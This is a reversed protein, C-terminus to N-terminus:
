HNVSQILVDGVRTGTKQAWGVPLELISSAEKIHPSIKGPKLQDLIYCVEGRSNIFWISLSYKMGFMHVQQCPILWLGEYPKLPSRGLLGRLRPWFSDAYMVSSAITEGTRFNELSVTTM